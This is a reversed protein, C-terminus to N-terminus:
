KESFPSMEPKRKNKLKWWRIKTKSWGLHMKSSNPPTRYTSKPTTFKWAQRIQITIIINLKEIQNENNSGKGIIQVVRVWSKWGAKPTQSWKKHWPIVALSDRTNMSNVISQSQPICYPNVFHKQLIKLDNVLRLTSQELLSPCHPLEIKRKLILPHKFLQLHGLIDLTSLPLEDLPAGPLPPPLYTSCNSPGPNRGTGQTLNAKSPSIFFNEEDM